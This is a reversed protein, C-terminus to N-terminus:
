YCIRTSGTLRDHYAQGLKEVVEFNGKHRAKCIARNEPELSRDTAYKPDAGAELLTEVVKIHGNTAAFCLATWRRDAASDEAFQDVDAGESLLLQALELHGNESALHLPTCESWQSISFKQNVNAGNDLSRQITMVEGAKAADPLVSSSDDYDFDTKWFREFRKILAAENPNEIHPNGARLREQICTHNYKAANFLASTGIWVFHGNGADMEGREKVTSLNFGKFEADVQAGADLLRELISLHGRAAATILADNLSLERLDFRRLALEVLEPRNQVVSEIFIDSRLEISWVGDSTTWNNIKELVQLLFPTTHNHSIAWYIKTKMVTTGPIVLNYTRDTTNWPHEAPTDNGERVCQSFLSWILPQSTKELKSLHYIWHVQAYKLLAYAARNWDMNASAERSTGNLMKELDALRLLQTHNNRRIMKRALWNSRSLPGEVPMTGISLPDIAAHFGKPVRMLQRKFDNFHLYTLCLAGLHKDLDEDVFREKVSGDDTFLHDRFSRHVYHVTMEEEDVFVLGCCDSIVKSMDNPMSARDLIKQGPQISLLEQFEDLTLPRRCVGCLRLVDMASSSGKRRKLRSIKREFLESISIPLHQLAGIMDKDSPQACIEEIVLRTWLFRDPTM